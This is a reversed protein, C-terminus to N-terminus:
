RGPRRHLDHRGGATSRRLGGGLLGNAHESPEDLGDLGPLQHGGGWLVEGDDPAKLPCERSKFRHGTVGHLRPTPRTALMVPACPSSRAVRRLPQAIKRGPQQVGRPVRIM